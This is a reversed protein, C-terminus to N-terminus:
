GGGNAAYCWAWDLIYYLHQEGDYQCCRLAMLRVRWM